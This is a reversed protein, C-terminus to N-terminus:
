RLDSREPRNQGPANGSNGPASGSNGPASGSNGPASGSNGPASGSNGPASGSNGASNESEGPTETGKRGVGGNGTGDSEGRQEGDVDKSQEGEGERGDVAPPRSHVGDDDFKISYAGPCPVGNSRPPDGSGPYENRRQAYTAELTLDSNAGGRTVSFPTPEGDYVFVDLSTAYKLLVRDVHDPIATVDLTVSEGTDGCPRLTFEVDDGDVAQEGCFAVYSIARECDGHQTWECPDCAPLGLDFARPDGLHRRQVARFEFGFAVDTDAVPETLTWTFSVTWTEDGGSLAHTSLLSGSSYTERFAGLTGDFLTRTGTKPTTLELSVDLSSEVPECTPCPAVLWVYAPNDAVSLEFVATEPENIAVSGTYSGNQWAAPSRVGVDLDLTGATLRADVAEADTFMAAVGSGSGAAAGTAAVAYLLQRRSIGVGLRDRRAREDTGREPPRGSAAARTERQESRAQESADSTVDPEPDPRDAKSAGDPLDPMAPSRGAPSTAGATRRRRGRRSPTTTASPWSRSSSSRNARPAPRRSAGTPM